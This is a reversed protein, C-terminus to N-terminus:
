RRVRLDRLASVPEPYTLRAPEGVVQELRAAVHRHLAAYRRLTSPSARATASYSTRTRPEVGQVQGILRNYLSLQHVVPPKLSRALKTDLVEYSYPGLDSPVPVQRLFDARGQWRGDFLQAQYILAAGDRMAQATQAAAAELRERTLPAEGTSLDVHGGCESSLRKLQQQEHVEGRDRILQAHPDDVPRPKGRENRVIGLRQQTLHECSLLASLDTAALVVDGEALRLM